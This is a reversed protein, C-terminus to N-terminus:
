YSSYVRIFFTQSNQDRYNLQLPRINDPDIIFSCIPAMIILSAFYSLNQLSFLLMLNLKNRKGLRSM